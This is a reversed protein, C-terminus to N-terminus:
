STVVGNIKFKVDEPFNFQYLEFGSLVSKIGNIFEKKFDSNLFNIKLFVNGFEYVVKYRCKKIAEFEKAFQVICNVLASISVCIDHECHGQSKIAIKNKDKTLIEIETM